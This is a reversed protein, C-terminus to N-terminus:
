SGADPHRIRSVTDGASWRVAVPIDGFTIYGASEVDVSFLQVGTSALRGATSSSTGARPRV